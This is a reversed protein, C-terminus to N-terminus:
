FGETDFVHSSYNMAKHLVRLIIIRDDIVKYFIIHQQCLLGKCDPNIETYTRGIQHADTLMTVFTYLKEIYHEAQNIGWTNLSYAWIDKIDEYAANSIVINM